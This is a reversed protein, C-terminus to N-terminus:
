EQTKILDNHCITTRNEIIKSLSTFRMESVNCHAQPSKPPHLAMQALVTTLAQTATSSTVFIPRAQYAISWLIIPGNNVSM